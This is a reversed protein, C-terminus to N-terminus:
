FLDRVGRKIIIYTKNNLLHACFAHPVLLDQVHVSISRNGIIVEFANFHLDKLVTEVSKCILIPKERDDTYLIDKVMGFWPLDNECKLLVFCGTKYKVGNCNIWPVSSFSIINSTFTSDLDLDLRSRVTVPGQEDGKELPGSMEYSQLLQHQHATTLAPNKYSKFKRMMDKFYQHKAEHRLTNYLYLPGFMLTLRPYHVMYHQKPVLHAKEFLSLFTTLYLEILHDMLDVMGKSIEFACIIQSINLLELYNIWFRDDFDVKPGLIFPVTVALSWMQAGTQHLSAGPKLHQDSITSPKTENYGYDFEMLLRNFKDVTMVREEGILYHRLLLQLHNGLQTHIHDHFLDPPTGGIIHFTELSNLLSDRNLGYNESLYKYIRDNEAHKLNEVQIKHEDVTRLLSPDETVMRRLVERHVMCHRCSHSATFGEKFGGIKHVALNDGIFAILSGYIVDGYMEVGNELKKLDDVIPEMIYDLDAAKMVDAEVALVLYIFDLKSRVHPHFNDLTFYFYSMTVPRSSATDVLNVDDYYLIVRFAGPKDMLLKNQQFNSGDTYSQLYYDSSINEQKILNNFDPHKRLKRITETFPVFLMNDSKKQLQRNDGLEQHSVKVIRPNVEFVQPKVVGFEKEFFKNQKWKTDIKSFVAMQNQIADNVNVYNSLFLNNASLASDVESALQTLGNHLISRMNEIVCKIVTETVNDARLKLIFEAIKRESNITVDTESDLGAFETFTECAGAAENLLTEDPTETQSVVTSSSANRDELCDSSVDQHFRSIHSRRSSFNRFTKPCSKHKCKLLLNPANQHFVYLHTVLNEYNQM